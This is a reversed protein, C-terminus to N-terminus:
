SVQLRLVEVEGGGIAEGRRVENLLPRPNTHFDRSESGKTGNRQSDCTLCSMFAVVIQFKSLLLNGGNIFESLELSAM